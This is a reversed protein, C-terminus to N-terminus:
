RKKATDWTAVIINNVVYDAPIIDHVLEPDCHMVRLVGTGAGAAAGTLGYLNNLWGPIPDKETALVSSPRVICSPIGNSYRRVVDESIAKSFTYTNPWEGLLRFYFIISISTANFFFSFTISENSQRLLTWNIM